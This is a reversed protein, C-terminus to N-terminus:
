CKRLYAVTPTERPQARDIRFPRPGGNSDVRVFQQEPRLVQVWLVCGPLEPRNTLRDQMRPLLDTALAAAHLIQPREKSQTCPDAEESV